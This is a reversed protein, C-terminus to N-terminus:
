QLAILVKSSMLDKKEQVSAAAFYNATATHKTEILSLDQLVDIIVQIKGSPIAPFAAFLPRLDECNVKEARIKRYIRAVEDRTPMLLHKKEESLPFRNVFLRYVDYRDIVKDPMAAPRVEKLKMSVMDSDNGHFISLSYCADIYDGPKYALQAPSVGFMMGGLETRGGKMKIRCHKGDSVPFVATVLLNESVFLPAPNGNGFPALLDAQAVSRTNIEDFDLVCDAVLDATRSMDENEMAFSNIRRRFKELNEPSVAAGAALEHGGFQVLHEATHSLAAHLNFAPISRGSGKYIDGDKTFVIAPKGFNEVLKSAVIGIVGPHYNEGRVVIVRDKAFDKNSSIERTIEDAIKNQTDQRKKNEEELFVALEQAQRPDECLLLELRNAADGMRGAANIRPAITYAINESTVTKGAIGSVAMLSELGCRPESNIMELGSKVLTRNEGELLMLDAITGVCVLDSYYELMEECGAGELACVLKFAVGVGALTKCPSDDDKRQPDVVACAAPLQEKPLHHDTVVVDLGISAAFDIQENASIGNDVTIVLSVGKDKLRQLVDSNLGYGEKERNPLKYFVQAGVNELYSFLVATACVGDVDYDGYVVIKEENNIAQWIRAVAKDMDKLLFPDSLPVEALYKEMAQEKTEIHRALLVKAALSDVGLRRSLQGVQRPSFRNAKWKRYLM